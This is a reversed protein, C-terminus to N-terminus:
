YPDITLWSVLTTQHITLPQRNSNLRKSPSFHTPNTKRESFIKRKEQFKRKIVRKRMLSSSFFKSRSTTRKVHFYNQHSSPAKISCFQESSTEIFSNRVGFKKKRGQQRNCVLFVKTELIKITRKIFRKRIWKM